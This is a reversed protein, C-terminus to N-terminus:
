VNSQELFNKLKLSFIVVDDIIVFPIIRRRLSEDISYNKFTDCSIILCKPNIRGYELLYYDAVEGAPTQVIGDEKRITEFKQKDDVRYVGSADIVPIIKANQITKRLKEKMLFYYKLKGKYNTKNSLLVNLLDILIIIESKM